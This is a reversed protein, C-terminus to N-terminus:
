ANEERRTLNVFVEELSAQAPKLQYLGWDRAVAERVLAETPDEGARFRVRIVTPELAEAAAVGPLAAIEAPAPPRRLGLLVTTGQHLSKLAGITDSYVIAGHHMIQVRDCVAEVEPLIHTSLIVSHGEGLSRILGRVERMQNPDLGVTPEDLIVVDPEHVIAQAIGVRQQYGRSLAGILRTGAQALGCRQKANAIAQARRARPVRHLKAAFTLYEDVTLERYLPPTEPLYGIRAKAAVPQELLDIGCVSVSGRTPALNGTLMQMTTTKGAGNPGLLGLVEGRRLELSIGNVAVHSGFSRTLGRAHLTIAAHPEPM